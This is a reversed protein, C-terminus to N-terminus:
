LSTELQECLASFVKLLSLKVLTDSVYPSDYYKTLLLIFNQEAQYRAAPCILGQIHELTLMGRKISTDLALTGANYLKEAKLNLHTGVEQKRPKIRMNEYFSIAFDTIIKAQHHQHASGQWKQAGRLDHITQEMRRLTLKYHQRLTGEERLYLNHMGESYYKYLHELLSDYLTAIRAQMSLSYLGYGSNPETPKDSIIKEPKKRLHASVAKFAETLRITMRHSWESRERNKDPHYEKLLRRYSANVEDYTAAESVHLIKFASDVNM